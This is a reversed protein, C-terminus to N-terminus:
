SLLSILILLESVLIIVPLVSLFIIKDYRRRFYCIWMLLVCMPVSLILSCLMGLVILYLLDHVNSFATGAVGFIILVYQWFYYVGLFYMLTTASAIITYKDQAQEIKFAM